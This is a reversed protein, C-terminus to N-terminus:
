QASLSLREERGNGTFPTLGLRVVGPGTWYSTRRQGPFSEGGVLPSPCGGLGGGSPLGNWLFRLNQLPVLYDLRTPNAPQACPNAGGM